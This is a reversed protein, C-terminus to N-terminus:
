GPGMASLGIWILVGMLATFAILSGFFLLAMRLLTGPISSGYVGRMHVFLHVPAGVLILQGLDGSVRSVLFSASLLLGQFSLSHMTFILHDYFFFRRQSIFLLAMLGAGIPLMLVALRHAWTEMVMIFQHPNRAAAIIRGKLWSASARAKPSKGLDVQLDNDMAKGLDRAPVEVVHTQGTKLNVTEVRTKGGGGGTIGGMFFVVLLVVLFMRLPPIQFARHGDLYDRTLGGPDRALRPLTRWLRGDLHFLNEVAETALHGISRHFNEALQGCEHCYPGQLPTECNACPTGVPALHPKRWKIWGGIAAAAGIELERDM